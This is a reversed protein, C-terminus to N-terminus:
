FLFKGFRWLRPEKIVAKLIIPLPNERTHQELLQQLKPQGMLYILRDWDKDEFKDFINRLRLHLNM